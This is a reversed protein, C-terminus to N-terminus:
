KLLAYVEVQDRTGFYVHGNVVVPFVFRTALSARDRAANEESSYIPHAINTADYAYLVAPREKGNWTRTSIIWVIADRTGNASVAPTAGPNDFLTTSQVAQKLTTGSVVYDRLYDNSAAFFAHGHWYAMAGYGGRKLDIQQLITNRNSQFKGMRDRDIVYIM